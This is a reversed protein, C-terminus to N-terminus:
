LHKYLILNILRAVFYSGSMLFVPITFMFIGIESKEVVRAHLVKKGFFNLHYNVPNKAKQWITIFIKIKVVIMMVMFVGSMLWTLLKVNVKQVWDPHYLFLVMLMIAVLM